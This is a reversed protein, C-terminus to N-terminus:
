HEYTDKTSPTSGQHYKHGKYNTTHLHRMLGGILRTVDQTLRYLQEFQSQSLFRADLAFVSTSTGASGKALALFQRFEASGGREFGEVINSMISVAARRIQDRLGYDHAFAGVQTIEYVLKTLERAKRWAEIDEFREIRAM